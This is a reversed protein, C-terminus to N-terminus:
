SRSWSRLVINGHGVKSGSGMGKQHATLAMAYLRPPAAVGTVKDVPATGPQEPMLLLRTTLDAHVDGGLAALASASVGLTTHLASAPSLTHLAIEQLSSLSVMDHIQIRDSLLLSAIYPGMTTVSIPVASWELVDVVRADTGNSGAARVSNQANGGRDRDWRGGGYMPMASGLAASWGGKDSGGGGGGGGKSWASSGGDVGGDGGDDGGGASVRESRPLSSKDM